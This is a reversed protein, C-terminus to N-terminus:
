VQSARSELAGERTRNALSRPLMTVRDKADRVTIQQMASDVDKARLRMGAGCLLRLMLDVTGDTRALVAQVQSRTLVTPLRASM